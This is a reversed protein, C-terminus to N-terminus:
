TGSFHCPEGDAVLHLDAFAAKAKAGTNDTDSAVALLMPSGEVTGFAREMDRLINRREDIWRGANENGSRLVYM